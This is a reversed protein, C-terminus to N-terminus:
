CRYYVDYVLLAACEDISHEKVIMENEDNVAVVAVDDGGGGARWDGDVDNDAQLKLSSWWARVCAAALCLANVFSLAGHM